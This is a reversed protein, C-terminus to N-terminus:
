SMPSLTLEDDESIYTAVTAAAAATTVKGRGRGTTTAGVLVNMPCFQAHTEMVERYNELNEKTLKLQSVLHNNVTRLADCEISLDEAKRKSKARFRRAAERNSKKKMEIRYTRIDDETMILLEGPDLPNLMRTDVFADVEVNFEGGPQPLIDRLPRKTGRSSSSSPPIKPRSSDGEPDAGIGSTLSATRIIDMMRVSAPGYNTTPLSPEGDMKPSVTTTGTAAVAALTFGDDPSHAWKAPDLEAGFKLRENREYERWQEIMLDAMLDTM